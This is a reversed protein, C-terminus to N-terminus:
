TYSLARMSDSTKSPQMIPSPYHLQLLTLFKLNPKLVFNKKIKRNHFAQSLHAALRM